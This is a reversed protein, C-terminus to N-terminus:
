EALMADWKMIDWCYAVADVFLVQTPSDDWQTFRIRLNGETTTLDPMSADAVTFGPDIWEATEMNQSTSTWLLNRTQPNM